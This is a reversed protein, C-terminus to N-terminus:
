LAPTAVPAPQMAVTQMTPIRPQLRNYVALAVAGAGWIVVGLKIWGGVYPIAFAVRTIIVGLTMRGILPWSERTRGLLWQGIMTAAVVLGFYVGAWLLFLTSVGVFLGVVTVCSIVAGVFVGPISLLGVGLAPGYREAMTVCEGSFDPMIKFLALGFLIYAACWIVRWIYYRATHYDEEHKLKEYHVPSALKAGSAVDPPNDGHFDIPGKVVAGSNISLEGSRVLLSGGLSGGITVAGGAAQVDRQVQGDLSLHGGFTTVSGGVVADHDLNVDGGAMMVNHGIKGRITLNGAYSRVNGDVQGSIVLTPSSSIVDGTVHGSVEIEAGIAILDGEVTGEVRVRGSAVFLDSHIVEDPGITVRDQHRFETASAPSPMGLVACMSTLVLALASGRRTIRRRFLLLAFGAVILMALVEFLTIVSQWGKWFAGQSILVSLLSTGGLGAQELRGMWPSIIETYLVYVGTAALGFILGWIWQFSQSSRTQFQALRAPLPEDEELLARTLLRSERELARLLTRCAACEQAHASVAQARGRDLQREAYMLCTIEDLHDMTRDPGQPSLPQSVPDEPDSM